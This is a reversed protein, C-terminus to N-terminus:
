VRVAAACAIAVAEISGAKADAIVKALKAIVLDSQRRGNGNM